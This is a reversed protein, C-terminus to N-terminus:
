LQLFAHRNCPASGVIERDHHLDSAEIGGFEAGVASLPTQVRLLQLPPPLCGLIGIGLWHQRHGLLQIQLLEEGLVLLFDFPQL